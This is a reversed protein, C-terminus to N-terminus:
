VDGKNVSVAGISIVQPFSKVRCYRVDKMAATFRTIGNGDKLILYDGEIASSITANAAEVETIIAPEILDVTDKTVFLVPALSIEYTKM